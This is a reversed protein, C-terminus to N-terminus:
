PTEQRQRYLEDVPVFLGVTGEEEHNLTAFVIGVVLGDKDLVPSGSNGRYVPAEMMIVPQALGNVRIPGIVNGKNAVGRFSLPNGIFTVPDGEDLTYSNALELFPLGSEDEAELVAMDSEPYSETVDAMFRRDDSLVVSVRDYGEIVHHNTLITGDASLIFGTGSGDPTVVSVVSEKQAQVTEQESLQSSTRLFDVASLPFLELVFAFTSVVMMLSIIWIMAKTGFSPGRRPPEETREKLWAERQAELVLRRIEEDEPDEPEESDPQRDAPENYDYFDDEGFEEEDLVDGEAIADWVGWEDPEWIDEGDDFDEYEQGEDYVRDRAEVEGSLRPDKKEEPEQEGRRGDM